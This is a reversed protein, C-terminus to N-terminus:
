RAPHRLGPPPEGGPSPASGGSGPTAGAGALQTRARLGQRFRGDVEALALIRAAKEREDLPSAVVEEALARLTEEPAAGGALLRDLHGRAEPLPERLLPGVEVRWAAAARAVHAGEVVKAGALLRAAQLLHLAREGSGGAHHLLLRRAKEDLRVGEAGAVRELLALLDPDSLPRFAVPLCRSRLGPVLDGLRPVLLLFRSGSALRELTRRLRQQGAPPLRDCGDLVMLRFPRGVPRLGAERPLRELDTRESLDFLGTAGRWTEGFLERALALAASRKGTGPPGHLVLHPVSGERAMRRLLARPGEQGVIEDLTSPRHKEAWLLSPSPPQAGEEGGGEVGRGRAPLNRKQRSPPAM